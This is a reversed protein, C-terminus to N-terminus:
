SLVIACVGDNRLSLPGHFVPIALTGFELSFTGYLLLVIFKILSLIGVALHIYAVIRL